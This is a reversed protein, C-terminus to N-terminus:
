ITNIMKYYGNRYTILEALNNIESLRQHREFVKIEDREIFLESKVEPMSVLGIYREKKFIKKNVFRNFSNANTEVITDGLYNTVDNNIPTNTNLNKSWKNFVLTESDIPTFSSTVKNKYNKINVLEGGNKINEGYSNKLLRYDLYEVKTLDDKTKAPESYYTKYIIDDIKYKIIKGDETDIIDMVGNYGIKYPNASDYTKIKFLKNDTVGTVM